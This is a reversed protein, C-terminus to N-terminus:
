GGGTSHDKGEAVYVDKKRTYIQVKGFLLLNAKGGESFFYERSLREKGERSM